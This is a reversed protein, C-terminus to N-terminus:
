GAAPRGGASRLRRANRETTADAPFFSEIRIEQLTVDQPTGLTTVASFYRYDRGNKRFEVPIFPVVPTTLDPRRWRAPVDPYDLVEELLRGTEADPVGGVAERHVRGLLGRAVEDWNVVWPRLGEPDFMLRLVNPSEVAALDVFLGFFRDAGRNGRVLNWHRDIVVAPHPEQRDLLLDLAKRAPELEPADLDGHAYLPAFGAALLLDNRERLPVDLAEALVLVMRQSPRARGTEVFSLHRASVEADLALALQSKKRVGRWHQLLRGVPSPTPRDPVATTM